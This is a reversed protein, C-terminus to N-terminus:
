PVAITFRRELSTASTGVDAITAPNGAADVATVRWYYIGNPLSQSLPLVHSMTPTPITATYRISAFDDTNSLELVYKTPAGTAAGWKFTPTRITTIVATNVPLSLAPAGPLTTDIRFTRWAGFPGMFGTDFEGRVRWYYVGDPPTTAPMWYAQACGCAMLTDYVPNTPLTRRIEVEYGVLNLGSVEYIDKWLFDIGSAVEEANFVENTLPLLPAPMQNALSTIVYFPRGTVATDAGSVRVARWYYLGPVLAANNPVTYTVASALPLTGTHIVTLMAPDFAIELKWGAQGAGTLSTWTFAPTSDVLFQTDTPTKGVFITFHRKTFTSSINGNADEAEVGWAYLVGQDLALETTPVTYSVVAGVAPRPVIKDTFRPIPTYVFAPDAGSVEYLTFHYKVATAPLSAKFTPRLTNLVATPDTPLSGVTSIPAPPPQTDLTFKNVVSTVFNSGDNSYIAKVRWYKLGDSLSEEVVVISTSTTPYSAVVPVFNAAPSVEVMYSLPALPAAPATWSLTIPADENRNIITDPLLNQNISTLGTASATKSFTFLKSGYNDPYTGNNPKVRWYYVGSVLMPQPVALTYTAQAINPITYLITNDPTGQDFSPDDDIQLEYSAAQPVATWTFVPRPVTVVGNHAPATGLRVVFTTSSPTLSNNIGDFVTIDVRVTSQPLNVVPLYSVAPANVTVHTNASTLDLDIVGGTTASLDTMDIRYNVAGPVAVWSVPPRVTSVVANTLPASIVPPNPAATDVIFSSVSWQTVPLGNDLGRVRWYFTVRNQNADPIFPWQTTAAAITMPPVFPPTFTASKSLVYEYESVVAGPPLGTPATWSLNIPDKILAPTATLVPGAALAGVYFKRSLLGTGVDNQPIGNILRLIRWYYTGAPLPQSSPMAFSATAVPGFTKFYTGAGDFIPDSELKIVYSIVQGTIGPAATWSFVPRTTAPVTPIFVGNLPGNGLLVTFAVPASFATENESRDFAQVCVYQEGQSLAAFTAPVTYTPTLILATSQHLVTGTDCDTTDVVRVEYRYAGPVATWKFTPRATSVLASHAPSTVFPVGSPIANDIVFNFTPSWTGVALNTLARARWYYVGDIWGDIDVDVNSSLNNFSMSEIDFLSSKSVEVEYGIIGTPEPLTPTVLWDWDLSIFSAPDVDNTHREAPTLYKGSAPTLLRPARPVVPGVTFKNSPPPNDLVSGAEGVRLVRWYYIGPTIGNITCNPALIVTGVCTYDVGGYPTTINADDDFLPNDDVEVTYAPLTLPAAAAAWTFKVNANAAPAIPTILTNPAPSMAPNVTFTLPASSIRNGAVDIASLVATYTNQMLNAGVTYTTVTINDASSYPDLGMQVVIEYKVAGAAKAWTFTPRSTRVISLNAPSTFVPVAPPTTDVTFSRIATYLGEGPYKARVRWYYVGDPLPQEGPYIANGDFLHYLDYTVQPYGIVHTAFTPVTSLDIEYQDATLVEDWEIEVDNDTLVAGNAPSPDLLVPAACPATKGMVGATPESVRGDGAASRLRFYITQSCGVTGFDFTSQAGSPVFESWSWYLGNPSIEYKYSDAGPAGVWTLRIRDPLNVSATLKTPPALTAWLPNATIFLDPCNEDYDYQIGDITSEADAFSVECVNATDGPVLDSTESYFLVKKGDASIDTAFSNQTNATTPSLRRTMSTAMDRVFVDTKGNTDGAVLNAAASSFVIWRGDSSMRGGYSPGAAYAGTPVASATANSARAFMTTTGIGLNNLPVVRLYAKIGNSANVGTVLNSAVSQFTVYLKGNYITADDFFASGDSLGNVETMSLRTTVNTTLNRVFVEACQTALPMFNICTGNAGSGVLDDAYSTFVVYVDGSVQDVLVEGGFSVDNATEANVSNLSVIHLIATDRDYLLLDSLDNNDVGSIPDAMSMLIYRGDSTANIGFVDGANISTIGGTERSMLQTSAALVDRWFVDKFGDTDTLDSTDTLDGSASYFLVRLSGPEYFIASPYGGETTEIEGTALDGLSVKEVTCTQTDYVYSDNAGIEGENDIELQRDGTLPNSSSFLVYRGDESLSRGTAIHISASQTTGFNGTNVRQIATLPTCAQPACPPTHVAKWSSWPGVGDTRFARVRYWVTLGCGISLETFTTTNPGTFGVYAHPTQPANIYREIEYREEDPNTDTWTIIVDNNSNTSLTVNTPAVLSSPLGVPSGEEERTEVSRTVPTGGGYVAFDDIRLVAGSSASFGAKEAPLLVEDGSDIALVGNVSIQIKAGIIQLRLTAWSGAELTVPSVSSVVAIQDRYLTVTGDANLGASYGRLLVQGEGANILFRAEVAAEEFTAAVYMVPLAGLDSQLAKGGDVAVELWGSTLGLDPAVGADFNASFALPLAPTEPVVPETVNQTAEITPLVTAEETPVPLVDQTPIPTLDQTPIVTPEVPSPIVDPTTIIVPETPLVIIPEEAAPPEITPESVATVQPEPEATPVDQAQTSLILTLLGIGFFVRMGQVMRTRHLSLRM